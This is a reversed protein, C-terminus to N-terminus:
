VSSKQPTSYNQVTKTKLSTLIQWNESTRQVSPKPAERLVWPGVRFGILVARTREGVNRASPQRTGVSTAMTKKVFRKATITARMPKERKPWKHLSRHQLFFLSGNDREHPTLM